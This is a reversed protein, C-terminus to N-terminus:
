WNVIDDGKGQEDIGNPGPSYLDFDKDGFIPPYIYIFHNLWADRPVDRRDIYPGHWNPKDNSQLLLIALGEGITPFTGVDKKYAELANTFILIRAKTFGERTSLTGENSQCSALILVLVSFLILSKTLDM